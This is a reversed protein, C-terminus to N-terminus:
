VAAGQEGLNVYVQIDQILMNYMQINQIDIPLVCLHKDKFVYMDYLSIVGDSGSRHM